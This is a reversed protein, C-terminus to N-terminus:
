DHATWQDNSSSSEHLAAPTLAAVSPWTEVPAPAAAMPKQHHQQQQCQKSSSSVKTAQPVLPGWPVQLVQMVVPLAACSACTDDQEVTVSVQQCEPLVSRQTQRTALLQLVQVQAIGHPM